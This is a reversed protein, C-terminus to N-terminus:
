SYITVQTMPPYISDIYRQDLPLFSFSSFSSSFSLYFSSSTQHYHHHNHHVLSQFNLPYKPHFHFLHSQVIQVSIYVLLLQILVIPYVLPMSYIVYFYYLYFLYYYYPYLLVLSLNIPIKLNISLKLHHELQQVSVFYHCNKPIM